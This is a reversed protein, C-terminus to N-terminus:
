ARALAGPPLTAGEAGVSILLDRFRKLLAQDLGGGMDGMIRIADEPPMPAKYVRRDTLAGFIDIIAAMRSLEDLATGALGAPYGSGDLKEHHQAAIQRVARPIGAARDLLALTRPVHGRMIRWEDGDLRGPKNLIAPPIDIKGLDHLLGGAALLGRENESMGIGQGFSILLVAVRLCHAFTYDDHARVAALMGGIQGDSVAAVLAGAGGAVDAFDIPKGDRIADAVTTFSRLSQALATREAPALTALRAAGALAQNAAGLLALPSAPLSLWRTPGQDSLEAAAGVPVLLVAPMEALLPDARLRALLASGQPAGGALGADSLVVLAPAVRRCQDLFRSADSEIRADFVPALAAIIHAADAQNAICILAGARSFM